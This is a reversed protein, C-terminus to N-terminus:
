FYKELKFKALMNIAGPGFKVKVFCPRGMM